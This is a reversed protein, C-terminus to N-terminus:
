PRREGTVVLALGALISAIGVLGSTHLPEGLLLVALAFATLLEGLALAVGTAGSIFRLANSFLLYSVGTAVGGLWAIVAWSRPGAAVLDAVGSPVIVWAAPLAIAAATGFVWLSARAPSALTSLSKATLTYVAYCLGATLCM